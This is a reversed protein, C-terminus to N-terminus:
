SPVPFGATRRSKLGAFSSQHVEDCFNAARKPPLAGCSNQSSKKSRLLLLEFFANLIGLLRRKHRLEDTKNQLTLAIKKRECLCADSM